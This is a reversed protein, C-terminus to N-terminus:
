LKSNGRCRDQELDIIPRSIECNHQLHVTNILLLIGLPALGLNREARWHGEHFTGTDLDEYDVCGMSICNSTTMRLWNHLYCASRKVLDTTTVKLEIPWGFVRFRQALIGFANESVRRALSLRYNFIKQKL